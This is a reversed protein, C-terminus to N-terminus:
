LYLKEEFYYTVSDAMWNLQLEHLGKNNKPIAMKYVSDQISFDTKIDKKEDSPCYLLVSGTINKNEFEKPFKIVLHNDIVEYMVKKTLLNARNSKDIKDQYKIEQEYYDAAVLDVKQNSSKFVLFLIGAVFALYVVLIKYGWNM